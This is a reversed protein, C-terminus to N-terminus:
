ALGGCQKASAEKDLNWNREDHMEDLASGLAAKMASVNLHNGEITSPRPSDVGAEEDKEALHPSSPLTFSSLEDLQDRSPQRLAALGTLPRGNLAAELEHCREALEVPTKDLGLRQLM